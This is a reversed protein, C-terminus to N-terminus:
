LVKEYKVLKVGGAFTITGMPEIYEIPTNWAVGLVTNFMDIFHKLGENTSDYKVGLIDECFDEKTIPNFDLVSYRKNHKSLMLQEIVEETTRETYKAFLSTLVRAGELVKELIEQAECSRVNYQRM